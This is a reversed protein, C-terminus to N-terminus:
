FQHSMLDFMKNNSIKPSGYRHDANLDSPLRYGKKGMWFKAVTGM